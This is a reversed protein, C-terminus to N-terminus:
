RRMLERRMTKVKHAMSYDFKLNGARLIFGGILDKNEVLNLQVEHYGTKKKVLQTIRTKQEETLPTVYEVTARISRVSSARRGMIIGDRRTLRHRLESLMKRTSRDYRFDGTRLVFGGLLEPKYVPSLEVKEYGTKKQVLRILREKQEETLPTVYEVTAKICHVARRNLSRYSRFIETIDMARGNRYVVKIFRRMSGPMLRDIVRDKEDQSIVPNSLVDMLQPYGEFVAAAKDVDTVPVGIELLAQGYAGTLQNM